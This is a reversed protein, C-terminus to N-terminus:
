DEVAGPRRPTRRDLTLRDLFVASDYERDGQDFFSLYLIRRGPRIRTSARLRRTARDYTTGGARGRTLSTDGGGSTRPARPLRGRSRRQAAATM